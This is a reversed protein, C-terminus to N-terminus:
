VPWLEYRVPFWSLLPQLSAGMMLASRSPTLTMSSSRHGFEPLSSTSTRCPLYPRQRKKSGKVIQCFQSTCKSRRLCSTLCTGRHRRPKRWRRPRHHLPVKPYSLSTSKLKAPCPRRRHLQFFAQLGDLLVGEDGGWVGDDKGEFVV